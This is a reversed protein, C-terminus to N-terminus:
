LMRLRNAGITGVYQDLYPIYVRFIDDQYTIAIGEISESAYGESGLQNYKAVVVSETVFTLEAPIETLRTYNRIAQEAHAILVNIRADKSLDSAGIGLLTKVNDLVAM